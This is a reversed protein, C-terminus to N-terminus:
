MLELNKAVGFLFRQKWVRWLKNPFCSGKKKLVINDLLFPRYMPPVEELASRIAKVRGALVREEEKEQESVKGAHGYRAGFWPERILSAGSAASNEAVGTEREAQRLAELRREMRDLDRVAWISQYYVADPMVLEHFRTQQWERSM